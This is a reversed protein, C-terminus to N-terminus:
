RDIYRREVPSGDGTPKGPSDSVGAYREMFDRKFTSFSGEAIHRRIDRMLDLLFRLNHETALMLGLIEGTKFLHRLYAKTYRTCAGCRCSEDIPSFDRAHREKKINVPGDKTFVQGNRATRTPFVCDFLDIGNDVAELIYDPTGIGMLYRPKDTPLLVQTFALFHAFTEFSEGVSLGGIAIGPTDFSVIQEASLTRLDEYFNGQVIGFLSGPWLAGIENKKKISRDLWDTTIRVAHEAESREADSGTCVDLPMAIDSGFIRQAEIVSEPSFFHPSGDIHSRFEVGADTIKRLQSLSFVQYGGSDTLINRDWDIFSHLGGAESIVDLGPRLYLHYTNSLILDVDMGELTTNAVAKVTGNTGVPVFVPTRVSRHPLHLYGTRADSRGDRKDIDFIHM